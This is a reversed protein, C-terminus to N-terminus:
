TASPVTALAEPDRGSVAWQEAVLKWGERSADICRLGQAIGAEACLRKLQSALLGGPVGAALRVMGRSSLFRIAHLFLDRLEPNVAGAASLDLIVGFFSRTAPLAKRLDDLMKSLDQRSTAGSIAARVGWSAEEVSTMTRFAYWRTRRAAM